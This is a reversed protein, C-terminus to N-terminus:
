VAASTAAFVDALTQSLERKCVPKMLFGDIGHSGFNKENIVSSFGTFLIVPIGPKIARVEKTLQIGTMHPMTQDTILIDFQEPQSRFLELAEISSTKDTVKYGLRVLMQRGMEALQREDDVLLIHQNGGPQHVVQEANIAESVKEEEYEEEYELQSEAGDKEVPLFIHFTTGLGPQSYVSIEGGHNTIIGHVVALGMGTGEGVKKTTFYPEFIRSMTKDDMGHGTDSVTIYQYRGSLHKKHKSAYIISDPEVNIEKLGIELIGGKEQMADAANTCLNLLVQQLQTSDALIAGLNDEINTQIEITSPLSLKLLHVSESVIDAPRVWKRKKKEKRSFALIRQIMDKARNTALLVQRLNKEAVSGQPVDEIVLETYGHVAGLINNFDHAIGGALTGIAEMKQAHRLQEELKKREMEAHKRETIEAELSRNFREIDRARNWLRQALHVAIGVLIAMLLGAVLIVLPLLSQLRSLTDPHAQEYANLAQWEVVTITAVGIAAPIFLWSPLGRKDKEGVTGEQWAFMFTGIGLIIFGASTHVAMRTLDGWGYATEVGSIYGSFAVTGLAVITSGLLGILLPCNKHRNRRSMILLSIGTIGFCLATNPAMRGPHSTAVTVYHDMLLQDIGFSVTFIYQVLTLFGIVASLSGFSAGWHIRKFSIALLGLGCLLFGLATNYQMPVFSPHVQILSLNRTYWGFLVIFGLLVSLGGCVVVISKLVRNKSQGNKKTM